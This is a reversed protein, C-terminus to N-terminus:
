KALEDKAYPLVITGYKKHSLTLTLDNSQMKKFRVHYYRSWREKLPLNQRLFHDEELETVFMPEHKNLLLVYDPNHLGSRNSDEPDSAFFTSIFFNEVEQDSTKFIQNLYIAKIIAQTHKKDVLTGIQVNTMSREFYKNKHFPEMAGRTSCSTLILISTLGAFAVNKIM